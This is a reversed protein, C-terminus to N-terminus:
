AGATELMRGVRMGQWHQASFFGGTCDLIATLADGAASVEAYGLELPTRVAGDIRLRWTASDIARPQDAVWSTTPFANGAFSGAERSGTFREHAGPLALAVVLTAAIGYGTRRDWRSHHRVRPWVRRLKVGVLLALWLGAMAHLAFIFWASAEGSILSIIGTVLALAAGAALSWETLRPSM